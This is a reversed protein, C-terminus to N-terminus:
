GTRIGARRIWQLSLHSPHPKGTASQARTKVSKLLEPISKYPILGVLRQLREPIKSCDIPGPLPASIPTTSGARWSVYAPPISEM